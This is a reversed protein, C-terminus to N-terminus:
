SSEPSLVPSAPTSPPFSRKASVAYALQHLHNRAFSILLQSEVVYDGLQSEQIEVLSYLSHVGLVRVGFDVSIPCRWLRGM